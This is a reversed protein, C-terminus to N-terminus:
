TAEPVNGCAKLWHEMPLRETPLHKEAAAKPIAELVRKAYQPDVFLPRLMPWPWTGLFKVAEEWSAVWGSDRRIPRGGDDDDLFTPTHDTMVVRFRESGAVERVMSIGGGEAGVKLIPKVEPM